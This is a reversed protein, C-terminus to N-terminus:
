PGRQGVRGGKAGLKLRIFELSWPNTSTLRIYTAHASGNIPFTTSLGASFTGTAVDDTSYFAQEPTQGQKVAWTVDGSYLGMAGQLEKIKQLDFTPSQLPGIYVDSEIATGDDSGAVASFTRVYGDFSGILVSQPATSNGQFTYCCLPSHDNNAFEQMFWANVRQEFFYHTTAQASAFPTAFVHFGQHTDDWALRVLNTSLDITTMAADIQQSIRVPAGQGPVYKYISRFQSMFFVSGVPDTCWAKGFAGGVATSQPDIRGGSTPDGRMMHVSNVCLIILIDDTFPILGTVIEGMLGFKSANLAVASGPVNSTQPSYAINLPNGIATMFVNRPDKPLGWFVIRGQWLALGRATAGASDVPLTGSTAVWASLTNTAPDYVKYNVGDSFYLKGFAQVSAIVTATASFASTGGNVSVWGGDAAVKLTGNSIALLIEVPGNATGSSITTAGITVSGGDGFALIRYASPLVGSGSIAGTTSNLSVSYGNGYLQLMALGSLYGITPRITSSYETETTWLVAGTTGSVKKITTPVNGGSSSMAVYFDTGDSVVFVQMRYTTDFTAVTTLGTLAAVPFAGSSATIFVLGATRTGGSTGVVPVALRGATTAAIQQQGTTSHLSYGAGAQTAIQTPNGLSTYSTGDTLSCKFVGTQPLCGCILSGTIALSMGTGFRGLVTGGATFGLVSMTEGTTGVNTNSWVIAGTDDLACAMLKAANAGSQIAMVIHYSSSAICCAATTDVYTGPLTTTTIRTGNATLVVEATGAPAMLLTVDPETLSTTVTVATGDLIYYSAYSQNPMGSKFARVSVSFIAANINTQAFYYPLPSADINLPKNSNVAGTAVAGPSTSGDFVGLVGMMTTVTTGTGPAIGDSMVVSTIEQLPNTGSVQGAIHKHIGPRSGGRMRDTSPEYARVNMGLPTTRAWDERVPRNPQKSFAYSLDVGACCFRLDKFEEPVQIPKQPRPTRAM